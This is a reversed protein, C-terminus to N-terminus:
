QDDDSGGQDIRTSRIRDAGNGRRHRTKRTRASVFAVLWACVGILAMVGVVLIVAGAGYLAFTILLNM